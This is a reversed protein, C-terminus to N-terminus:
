PWRDCTVDNLPQACDPPLRDQASHDNGTQGLIQCESEDPRHKEKVDILLDAEIGTDETHDERDASHAREEARQDGAAQRSEPNTRDHHCRQQERRDPPTQGAPL